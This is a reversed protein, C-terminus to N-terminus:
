GSSGQVLKEALPFVPLGAASLAATADLGLALARQEMHLTAPQGDVTVAAHVFNEPANADLGIGGDVLLSAELEPLAFSVYISQPSGASNRLAYTITIKDATIVVDQKEISISPNAAFALGGTALEVTSEAGGAPVPLALLLAACAFGLSRYVLMKRCGGTLRERRACTEPVPELMPLRWM